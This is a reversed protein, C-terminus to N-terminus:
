KILMMNKTQSFNDKKLRYFYTGSTLNKATFSYQYSGAYLVENVLTEIEKGTIDYIILSVNTKKPISFNIKTEPNFPNPYNQSLTFQSPINSSTQNISTVADYRYITGSDGTVIVSNGVCEMSYLEISSNEDFLSWDQGNNTTKYVRGLKPQYNGAICFGVADTNFGIDKLIIESPLNTQGWSAGQNSTRLIVPDGTVTNGIIHLVSQNLCLGLGKINNANYGMWNSGTNISKWFGSSSNDTVSYGFSGDVIVDSFNGQFGSVLSVWNNGQNTSRYFTGFGGTIYLNSNFYRISYLERITFSPISSWNIGSNVTKFMAGNQGVIFGTNQDLFCIANLYFNTQITSVLNWTQGFDTTKYVRGQNGLVFGNNSENLFYLGWLPGDYDSIKIVQNEARAQSFLCVLSLLFIILFNFIKM